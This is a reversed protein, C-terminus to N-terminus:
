NKKIFNGIRRAAEKMRAETDVLAMRVYGEGEPGFGAGPTLSVGEQEALKFAFDLSGKEILKKPLPQWTFMAARNKITRGWGATELGSLLADRRGQYILGQRKIYKDGKDLAVVAALQLAQFHGYDFYTKIRGLLDVLLPNGALFGIRWGAMSYPKSMTFSEGAVEKAGKVQLISPAKYGDFCTHGYAFDNLVWFKYKRALDVVAEFFPLEVTKGTPNHPFNLILIKPKPTVTQFTKEIDKLLQPGPNEETMMIGFTHAGSLIPAYRHIMYAPMPVACFDSPGLIALCLHSLADKSGISMIVEKEPDLTVNFHREYHRAFAQKLPPIGRPKSYRHNAPDDLQAKLEAIVEDQIPEVPNGMGLDIVDVGQARMTENLTNIKNLIYPPLLGMRHADPQPFGDPVPPLGNGNKHAETKAHSSKSKPSSKVPM